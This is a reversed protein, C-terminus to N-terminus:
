PYLALDEQAARSFPGGTRQAAHQLVATCSNLLGHKYFSSTQGQDIQRDRLEGNSQADTTLKKQQALSAFSPLHMHLDANVLHVVRNSTNIQMKSVYM